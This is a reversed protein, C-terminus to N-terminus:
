MKKLSCKLLEEVTMEETLEVARVAKAAEMKPYGLVVLAEIADQVIATTQGSDLGHPQSIEEEGEPLLAEWDMKDKLELIVKSATKPGIGPTKAISKADGAMIACRIDYTSMVGMIGLGAKPGIGNVTILLKYMNLDEQTLFGFLQMADERVNLYTYLMVEGGPGPLGELVSSPVSIGFGVGNNEIIIENEGAFALKGKIFRIM